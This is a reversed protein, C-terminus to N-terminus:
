YEYGYAQLFESGTQETACLYVYWALVAPFSAVAVPMIIKCLIELPVDIIGIEALQEDYFIDDGLEVAAILEQIEQLRLVNIKDHFTDQANISTITFSFILM